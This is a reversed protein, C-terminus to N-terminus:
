RLSFSKKKFVLIQGIRKNKPSRNCLMEHRNLADKRLISKGCRKCKFSKGWRSRVTTPERMAAGALGKDSGTKVTIANSHNTTTALQRPRWLKKMSGKFASAEKLELWKQRTDLNQRKVTGLM